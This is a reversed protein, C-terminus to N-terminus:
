TDNSTDNEATKTIFCIYYGNFSNTDWTVNVQEGTKSLWTNSFISVAEKNAQLRAEEEKSRGKDKPHVFDLYDRGKLENEDYGMWKLFTRNAKYIKNTSRTICAMGIPATQFFVENIIADKPSTLAKFLVSKVTLM